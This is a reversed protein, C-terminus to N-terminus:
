FGDYTLEKELRDLAQSLREFAAKAEESLPKKLLDPGDDPHGELDYLEDPESLRRILKWRQDRVAREDHYYPPKGPGEFLETYLYERRSPLKPNRPYPLLTRGDIELRNGNPDQLQDPQVGAIDAVTAFIDVVHVLADSESGPVAVLPGAVILPVNAGGEYLTKKAHQKNAPPATGCRLTGGDSVFIVTTNALVEPDIGSLLRGIETDMGEVMADYKGISTKIAEDSQSHLSAPPVDLPPHAANFAVMLFWPASLETIYTLADDVSVTTAYEDVHSAVGDTVKEWHYYGREKDGAESSAKLKGASGSFHRFGM